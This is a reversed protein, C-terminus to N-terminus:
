RKGVNVTLDHWHTFGLMRAVTEQCWALTPPKTAATLCEHLVRAQYELTPVGTYPAYGPFPAPAFPPYPHHEFDHYDLAVRHLTSGFIIHAHGAPQQRLGSLDQQHAPFYSPAEPDEMKMFIKTHCQGVVEAFGEVRKMAPYDQDAWLCGLGLNPGFRSVQNASVADVYGFAHTAVLWTRMQSPRPLRPATAAGTKGTLSALQAFALAGPWLQWGGAYKEAAPMEIFVWQKKELAEVMDLEPRLLGHADSQTHMIHGYHANVPALLKTVLMAEVPAYAAQLQAGELGSSANVFMTKISQPVRVDHMAQQIGMWSFGQELRRSDLSWLGLQRGWVLYAFVSSVWAIIQLSAVGGKELKSGLHPRLSSLFLETLELAGGSAFPNFTHSPADPSTMDVLRLRQPQGLDAALARARGMARSWGHCNFYFLGTDQTAAAHMMALLTEQQGSGAAGFMVAHGLAGQHTWSVHKPPSPSLMSKLAGGIGRHADLSKGLPIFIDPNPVVGASDVIAHHVDGSPVQGVGPAALAPPISTSATALASAARFDWLQQVLSQCHALQTPVRTKLTDHLARALEKTDRLGLKSSVPRACPTDNM